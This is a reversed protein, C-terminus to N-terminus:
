NVRPIRAPLEDFGLETLHKRINDEATLDGVLTRAGYLEIAFSTEGMLYHAAEAPLPDMPDIRKPM